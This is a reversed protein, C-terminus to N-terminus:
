IYGIDSLVIKLVIKLGSNGKTHGHKTHWYSSFNKQGLSTTGKTHGKNFVKKGDPHEDNYFVYAM